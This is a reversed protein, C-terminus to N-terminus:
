RTGRIKLREAVPDGLEVRRDRAAVREDLLNLSLLFHEQLAPAFGVEDVISPDAIMAHPSLLETEILRPLGGLLREM